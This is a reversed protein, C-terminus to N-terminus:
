NKDYAAKGAPTLPLEGSGLIQIRASYRTAWYVGALDPPETQAQAQPFAASLMAALLVVLVVRVKNMSRRGWVTTMESRVDRSKRRDSTAFRICCVLIM